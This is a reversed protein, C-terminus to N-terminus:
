DSAVNGESSTHLINELEGFIEDFLKLSSGKVSSHGLFDRMQGALLEFLDNLQQGLALPATPIWFCIQRRLEGCGDM